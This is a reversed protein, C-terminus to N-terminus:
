DISKNSSNNKNLPHFPHSSQQFPQLALILFILFFCCNLASPFQRTQIVAHIWCLDNIWGNFFVPKEKVKNVWDPAVQGMVASNLRFTPVSGMKRDMWKMISREKENEKGSKRGKCSTCLWVCTHVTFMINGVIAKHLQIGTLDIFVGVRQLSLMKVSELAEKWCMVHEDLLEDLPRAEM